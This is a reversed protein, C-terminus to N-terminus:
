RSSSSVTTQSSVHGIIACAIRKGANGTTKSENMVKNLLDDKRLGSVPYGRERCFEQLQTVSLSSYPINDYVDKEHRSVLAGLGEDDPLAHIVVSRGLLHSLDGSNLDVLRDIYSLKVRGNKDPRINNVLDGCHRPTDLRFSGHNMKFPNYHGGLSQCGKRLDGYEHIHIAHINDASSSSVTQFGNLDMIVRTSGPSIISFVIDGRIPSSETFCAIVSTTTM